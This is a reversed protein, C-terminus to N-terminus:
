TSFSAARVTELLSKRNPHFGHTPIDGTPIAFITTSLLLSIGGSFFGDGNAAFLSPGPCQGMASLTSEVESSLKHIVLISITAIDELEYM